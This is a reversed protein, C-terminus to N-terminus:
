EEASRGLCFLTASNVVEEATAWDDFDDLTVRPNAVVHELIEVMLKEELVIGQRNKCRDRLRAWERPPIKKFTYEVGNITEVKEMASNKKVEKTM